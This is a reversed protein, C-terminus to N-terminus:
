TGPELRDVPFREPGNGRYADRFAAFAETDFRRCTALTSWATLAIRKGLEPLPALLMGNPSEGYFAKLTAVVAKPVKNGYQLVVGGHELNHVAQVQLLPVDYAGWIAPQPYHPGSTPPFSDYMVTLGQTGKRAADPTGYLIRYADPPHDASVHDGGLSPVSRLRCDARALLASSPPKPPAPGRQVYFYVALVGLAGAVALLFRGV